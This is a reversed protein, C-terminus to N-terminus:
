VPDHRRERLPAALPGEAEIAELLRETRVGRSGKVLLLANPPILGAARNFASDSSGLRVCAVGLPEIEDAALSALDGFTILTDVGADAIARGVERHCDPGAEGLELMDGLAFIKPGDHDIHRLSRAAALASDPHANYTDDLISLSGRALPRMRGRPPEVSAIANLAVRPDIGLTHALTMASAANESQHAGILRLEAAITGQPTEIEVETRDFRVCTTRADWAPLAHPGLREALRSADDGLSRSPPCVVPARPALGVRLGATEEIVGDICGLGDLHERGVSAILGADPQTLAALEATEGKASTGVECVVYRDDRDAALLTLAVGLPNNFSKPSVTTSGDTELAAGVLRKTTTKGASGAVAVVRGTFTDRHACALATLAAMANDVRLLGFGSPLGQSEEDSLGRDIMACAAGSRAAKAVYRHGDTHEGRLAIFVAGPEITRSDISVGFAHPASPIPAWTGGTADALFSATLRPGPHETIM